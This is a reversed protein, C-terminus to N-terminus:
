PGPGLLRWAFSERVKVAERPKSGACESGVLTLLQTSWKINVVLFLEITSTKSEWKM